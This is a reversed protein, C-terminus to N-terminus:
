SDSSAAGPRRQKNGASGKPPYDLTGPLEFRFGQEHEPFPLRSKDRWCGM